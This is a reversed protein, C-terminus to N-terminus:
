SGTAARRAVRETVRRLRSSGGRELHATGALAGELVEESDDPGCTTLFGLTGIDIGLVAVGPAPHRAVSLLTGDGGLTM